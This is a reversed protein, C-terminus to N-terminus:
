NTSITFSSSLNKPVKDSHSRNEGCIPFIDDKFKFSILRSKSTMLFSWWCTKQWGQFCSCIGRFLQSSRGKEQIVYASPKGQMAQHQSLYSIQKNCSWPCFWCTTSTRKWSSDQCNKKLQFKQRTAIPRWHWDRKTRTANFSCSPLPLLAPPGMKLASCM